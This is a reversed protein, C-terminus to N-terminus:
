WGDPEHALRHGTYGTAINGNADKATVTVPPARGRYDVGASSAAPTTAPGAYVTIM